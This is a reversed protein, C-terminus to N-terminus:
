KIQGELTMRYDQRIRGSMFFFLDCYLFATWRTASLTRMLKQKQKKWQALSIRDPYRGIRTVRHYLGLSQCPEFTILVPINRPTNVACKEGFFEWVVRTITKDGLKKLLNKRSSTTKGAGSFGKFLELFVTFRGGGRAVFGERNQHYRGSWSNEWYFSRCWCLPQANPPKM